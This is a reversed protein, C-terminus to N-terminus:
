ASHLIESSCVTYLAATLPTRISQAAPLLCQAATSQGTTAGNQLYL